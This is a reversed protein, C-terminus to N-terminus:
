EEEILTDKLDKYFHAEATAQYPILWLLGIGCTLFALIYWGIFTFDLVFMDWKNGKMLQRSLKLAERAGIEPYDHILYPVAKYAYNLIIGGIGLTIISVPIIIIMELILAKVYRIWDSKFFNFMERMSGDEVQGRAMALLVNFMAFELPAAILLSVLTTLASGSSDILMRSFDNVGFFPTVFSSVSFVIAIGLLVLTMMAAENWRGELTERAMARYESYLRM